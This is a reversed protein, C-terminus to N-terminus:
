SKAALRRHPPRRVEPMTGGAFVNQARGRGSPGADAVFGMGIGAGAGALTGILTYGGSTACSSVCLATLLLLLKLKTKM